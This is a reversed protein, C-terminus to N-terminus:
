SQGLNTVLNVAVALIVTGFLYSLLTHGLAVRRIQTSALDKGEPASYSMGLTFAVYAFDSYAPPQEQRFEIGGDEGYYLRAYKLAFVTNVLIWSLTVAAVSLVVSAVAVSDQNGRSRVLAMVVFVLSAVAAILVWTDTSYRSRSEEEALRRTGEHGQPWSIWWVWALIIITAVTWTVLLSLEPAGLIAVLIGALGGVALSILARRVSLIRGRLRSASQEM